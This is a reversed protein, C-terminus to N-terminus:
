RTYEVKVITSRSLEVEGLESSGSGEEALGIGRQEGGKM